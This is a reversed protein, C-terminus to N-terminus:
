NRPLGQRTPCSGCTVQGFRSSKMQWLASDSIYLQLAFASVSRGSHWCTAGCASPCALPGGCGGRRGTARGGPSAPASSGGAHYGQDLVKCHTAAKCSHSTLKCGPHRWKNVDISMCKGATQRAAPRCAPPSGRCCSPRGRPVRTKCTRGQRQQADSGSESASKAVCAVQEQQQGASLLCPTHAAARGGAQSNGIIM